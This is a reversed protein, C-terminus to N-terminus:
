RVSRPLANNGLPYAACVSNKGNKEYSRWIRLIQM